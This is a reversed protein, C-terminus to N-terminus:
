MAGEVKEVIEKIGINMLYAIRDFKGELYLYGILAEVGTAKRYTCVDANKPSSVSKANRGRKLVLTEEEDLVKEIKHYMLSQSEARVFNRAAKHLKNVPANGRSIIYDRVYVEYIGDGVYALALPSFERANVAKSPNIFNCDKM